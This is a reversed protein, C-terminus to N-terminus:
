SRRQTSLWECSNLGVWDLMRYLSQSEGMRRSLFFCQWFRSLMYSLSVIMDLDMALLDFGPSFTCMMSSDIMMLCETSSLNLGSELTVDFSCKRINKAIYSSVPKATVMFSTVASRM